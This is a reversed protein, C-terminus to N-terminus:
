SKQLTQGLSNFFAFAFIGGNLPKCSLKINSQCRRLLKYTKEIFFTDAKFDEVKELNAIQEVVDNLLIARGKEVSRWRNEQQYDANQNCGERNKM